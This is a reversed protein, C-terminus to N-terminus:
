LGDMPAMRVWVLYLHFIFVSAYVLFAFGLLHKVRRFRVHVLLIGLGILTTVLKVMGFGDQGGWELTWAMVPNAETGGANLHILTFVMDLISLILIGGVLLYEAVSYRDVYINDREGVRRGQARRGFLSFRSILGTARERRDAHSRREQVKSKLIPEVGTIDLSKLM